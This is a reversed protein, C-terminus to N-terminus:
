HRLLMSSDGSTNNFYVIDLFLIINKYHKISIYALSASLINLLPKSKSFEIEFDFILLYIHIFLKEKKLWIHLHFQM